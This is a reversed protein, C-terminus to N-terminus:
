KPKESDEAGGIQWCGGGETWHPARKMMHVISINQRSLHNGWNLNGKLSFFKLSCSHLCVVTKWAKFFFFFIDQSCNLGWFNQNVHRLSIQHRFPLFCAPQPPKHAMTQARGRQSKNEGTNKIGSLPKALIYIFQMRKSDPPEYSDPNESLIKRKRVKELSFTQCGHATNRVAVTALTCRCHRRPGSM